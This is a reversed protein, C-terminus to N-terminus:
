LVVDLAVQRRKMADNACVGKFHDREVEQCQKAKWYYVM